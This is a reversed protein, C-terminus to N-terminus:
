RAFRTRVRQRSQRYLEPRPPSSRLAPFGAHHRKIYPTLPVAYPSPLWQPVVYVTRTEAVPAKRQRDAERQRLWDDLDQEAAIAEDYRQQLEAACQKTTCEFTEVGRLALAGDPPDDGYHVHGDADQWRFTEAQAGVAM